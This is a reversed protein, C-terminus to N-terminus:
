ATVTDRLTIYGEELSPSVPVADPTPQRSAVLRYRVGRPDPLVSVIVGGKPEPGPTVVSWVRGEAQATLDTVMGRFIVRGADLM